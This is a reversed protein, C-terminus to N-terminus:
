TDKLQIKKSIEIIKFQKPIPLKKIGDIYKNLVVQNLISTSLPKNGNNSFRIEIKIFYSKGKTKTKADLEIPTLYGLSKGVDQHSIKHNVKDNKLLPDKFLPDKKSIFTLTKILPYTEVYLGNKKLEKNIKEDMKELAGKKYGTIVLGVNLMTAFRYTTYKPYSHIFIKYLLREMIDRLHREVSAM